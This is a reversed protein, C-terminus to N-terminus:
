LNVRLFPLQSLTHYLSRSYVLRWKSRLLSRSLPRMLWSAAFAGTPPTPLGTAGLSIYELEAHMACLAWACGRSYSSPASVYVCARIVQIVFYRESFCHVLVSEQTAFHAARRPEVHNHFSSQGLHGEADCASVGYCSVVQVFMIIYVTTIFRRATM